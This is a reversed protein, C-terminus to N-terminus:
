RENPWEAKPVMLGCAAHARFYASQTEARAKQVESAIAVLDGQQGEWGREVLQEFLAQAQHLLQCAQNLGSIADFRPVPPIM